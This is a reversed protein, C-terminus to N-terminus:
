KKPSGGTILEKLTVDQLPTDWPIYSKSMFNKTAPEVTHLVYVRMM